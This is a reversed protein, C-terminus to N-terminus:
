NISLLPTDSFGKGFPTLSRNVLVYAGASVKRIHGALLIENGPIPEAYPYHYSRNVFIHVVSLLNYQPTYLIHGKRLFRLLRMKVQCCLTPANRELKLRKTYVCSGFPVVSPIM